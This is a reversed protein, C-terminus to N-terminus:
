LVTRHPRDASAALKMPNYLVGDSNVMPGSRTFGWREYVPVSNNSSNVTFDGRHGAEECAAKAVDWMKRGIGRRHLRKAVFLHYLHKNDRTGVFGALEGEIEAVHYRFGKEIRERIAGADNRSLFHQRAAPEFERTIFETALDRLRLAVPEIDDPQIPRIALTGSWEYRLDDLKGASQAKAWALLRSGIGRRHFGRRVHLQTISEPTAAVFGVIRGELRAVRIANKPVVEEMGVGFEFSERLMRVLEDADEERFEDLVISM